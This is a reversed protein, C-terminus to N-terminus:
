RRIPGDWRLGLRFLQPGGVQPIGPLGILYQRDTLNDVQATAYLSSVLRYKAALQVTAYGGLLLTNLDNEWQSSFVRLGASISTRDNSWTLQASGTHLPVQPIRLGMDFQSDVYMYSLMGQWHSGWSERMSLELGYSKAGGLNQRQRTILSPTTELTVNTIVDALSNRFLTLSIHRKEGLIDFGVESGFLREPKLETNGTTLVTGVRFPRYLENLTPSRFSRYLSGRFRFIGHGYAFGGTPSYYARGNGLYDFRSGLFIQLPGRNLNLQGFYGTSNRTGGATSAAGSFPNHDTSYGDLHTFDGGVVSNWTTTNHRWLGAMGTAESEAEQSNVLRESNRDDAVSSFTSHFGERSHYVSFWTNDNTYQHAWSLALTGLGTSNKQVATGNAKEEGLMDLRLFVRDTAGMYDVRFVGDAFNSGARRDTAGRISDPVIYYGDTQFARSYASVGWKQKWINSFGGGMQVQGVNGGSADLILHMPQPQASFMNITGGMAKDGWVSTTAGRSIEVRDILDPPLRDWYIWGGFPSNVPIGDWLLVTRSAGSSSLGRLNVGQTTPHSVLSSSRRFMSFGPISRLRDDLNVGPISQIQQQNVVEISAPSEAEM